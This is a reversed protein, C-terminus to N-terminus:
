NKSIIMGKKTWKTKEGWVPMYCNTNTLKGCETFGNDFTWRWGGEKRAHAMEMVHSMLVNKSRTNKVVQNIDLGVRLHPIFIDVEKSTLLQSANNSDGTHFIVISGASKGCNVEFSLVFNPTRVNHDNIKIKIEIEGLTITTPQTVLYKNDFFNTVVPKGAKNMKEIMGIDFHDGHRHSILLFDILDVLQESNKHKIDIGFCSNPTKVIYGMNYLQWVIITGKAPTEAKVERVVKEFAQQFFRLIGTEKEQSGMKMYNNFQTHTLHNAACQIVRLAQLRNADVDSCSGSWLSLIARDIMIDDPMLCTTDNQGYSNIVLCIFSFAFFYKKM